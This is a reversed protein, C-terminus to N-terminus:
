DAAGGVATAASAPSEGDAPDPYEGPAEVTYGRARMAAALGDDSLLERMPLLALTVPNNSLAREAEALWQAHVQLPLDGARDRLAQINSAADRCAEFQDTYPLARLGEIDGVAWANARDRMFALDTELRDLTRSFCALDDIRGQKFESIAQKPDEIVVEVGPKSLTVAHEAALEEVRGSIGDDIRLGTDEVAEEYLKMAAFMPRWSEIGRDRGIYRAKLAQWRAYDTAPVINELRAGDPNRRAGVLRPALALGRFFGVEAKINVNPALMVEQAGTIVREVERAEWEMRRPLPALTGLVWMVHGDRSIKWLGPGPLVGSVVIADLDRVTGDQAPPVEPASQAIASLASSAVFASLVVALAHPPIRLNM